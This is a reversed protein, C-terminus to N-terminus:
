KKTTIPGFEKLLGELVKIQEKTAKIEEHLDLGASVCAECTDLTSTCVEILHKAKDAMDESWRKRAM